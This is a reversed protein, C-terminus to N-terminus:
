RSGDRPQPWGMQQSSQSAADASKRLIQCAHDLTAQAGNQPQTARRTLTVVEARQCGVMRMGEYMRERGALFKPHDGAAGYRFRRITFGPDLSLGAQATARAEGLLGLSCIQATRAFSDAQRLSAM